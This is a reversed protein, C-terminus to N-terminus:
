KKGGTYEFIKVANSLSSFVHFEPMVTSENSHILTYHKLAELPVPSILPDESVIKYNGSTQSSIFATAAEYSLFYQATTIERYPKGDRGIIEEYSIVTSRQPIVEDGDFNYLRTSMARYYEPYFLLVPVLENEQPQYYIDCFYEHGAYIAISNVKGIVTEYDIIVYKSNLREIIKNASAEDQATFFRAVMKRSGGGPDCNPLRQSIRLIWYGNDWWSLVGYATEPYHFPTEYLEYYHNPDGFPDPTNDKLWSLSNYWADSPVFSTAQNVATTAPKFNPFFVLFFIVLGAVAINANIIQFASRKVQRGRDKKRAVAGYESRDYAVRRRPDSLVAYAKDLQKLKERDEDTLVGGAQYRSVLKHYANKIQKSTAIRPVGLADYYNFRPPAESFKVTKPAKYGTFELLQSSVYNNSKGTVRNIIFQITYYLIISLYATLLAVNIAFFLAIRRLALTAALTILSWVIILVHDTETRKLSLYILVGLSILSLFFGTTYNYWIPSLTFYGGPFLISGMEMVTASTQMPTFASFQALMSRLLTPSAAYFIGLGILGIGTVALPYYAKKIWRRRLLWALGSLVPPIFLSIVLAVSHLQSRSAAGFILLATLFAVTSVLSLYDFSENKFYHIISRAIFYALIILVFLFSGRWTFLSLGLLIGALLSYIIPRTLVPLYRPHLLRFTMQKEWASKIALILFLMTTTTLLVELADRDTAGLISRGLFEGPLVAILAAAVIGAKQNFLAKGIFYVPIVTLAGVVAPFYASVVDVLHASPSGLGILWTISGLLYVFFNLPGLTLGTPYRLYPDLSILHPFNHVFNDVQRLFYYADNTAFKTIDGVFIQDYSLGVRLYLAGGFFIVLLIFVFWRTM